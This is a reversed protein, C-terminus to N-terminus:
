DRLCRVSNGNDWNASERTIYSFENGLYRHWARGDSYQTFSWFAGGGGMGSFSGDTRYGGPLGTFGSTNSGNRNNSWGSTSKLKNGADTGLFETLVSWEADSPVHWGSPCLNRFNAVAYWNYLKGYVDDNAAINGYIAWAPSRADEWALGGTVNPITSGDRYRTTKLNSAMWVQTGIEVTKYVNGDIDKVTNKKTDTDNESILSCNSALFTVSFLLLLKKM